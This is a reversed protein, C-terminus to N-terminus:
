ADAQRERAKKRQIRNPRQPVEAKEFQFLIEPDLKRCAERAQTESTAGMVFWFFKDEFLHYSRLLNLQAKKVYLGVLIYALIFLGIHTVITVGYVISIALMPYYLRNNLMWLLPLYTALPNSKMSHLAAHKKSNRFIEYNEYHEIPEFELNAFGESVVLAEEPTVFDFKAQFPTNFCQNFFVGDRWFTVLWAVDDPMTPDYDEFANKLTESDGLFLEGDIAVIIDDGKIRHAVAARGIGQKQVKLFQRVPQTDTENPAEDEVAM